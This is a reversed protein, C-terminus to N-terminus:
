RRRLYNSLNDRYKTYEDDDFLVNAIISIKLIPVSPASKVISEDIIKNGHKLYGSYKKKNNKMFEVIEVSDSDIINLEDFMDIVINAHKENKIPRFISLDKPIKRLYKYQETFALYRDGCLIPMDNFSILYNSDYEIGLANILLKTINFEYERVEFPKSHIRTLKILKKM